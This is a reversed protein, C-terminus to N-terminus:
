AGHFLRPDEVTEDAIASLPVPRVPIRATAMAVDGINRDHRAAILAAIQKQCSRGQCLGMGARTLGKVVNADASADIVADLEDRSVEECRCVITEPRALEHVGPGIAHMQGLANRFARKRRLRRRVPGAAARAEDESLAGLERAAAIGALQGEGIAIYSGEVGTGDGAALVGPVSTRMWEDTAVVPGGRDEDYAFDCGALRLLEVSPVFGYGICLTDAPVCEESGPIVRWMADVAAHTISEVRANGEARVVIRRYRLPIRARLLQARYAVADRLLHVNGLAAGAIRAIDAPGPPPGAELVLEVQAGYGYLQAPFALALPGSGAFIIRRGPLVRQTKVLTQAGGATLVGPLTWGPFVVPRDYAGPSLILKRATVTRAPRDGEVLVAQDGRIAVVATNLMLTAGSQEAGEILARGRLYEPGLAQPDRVRFGPGLQKYIQGGLTVREDAVGVSLGLGAAETAAALGAPGGGVVLVEYTEHDPVLRVDWPPM